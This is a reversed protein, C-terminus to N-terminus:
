KNFLRFFWGFLSFSGESARIQEELATNQKETLAIAEKLMTQEAQNQTQTKMQELKQVQMQNQEVQQKMLKVASWDPGLLFRVFGPRSSVKEVQKVAEQNIKEQNEMVSQIQTKFQQEMGEQLSQGLEEKTKLQEAQKLSTEEGENQVQAQNQEKQQLYFTTDLEEARACTECDAWALSSSTLVGFLLVTLIKKM